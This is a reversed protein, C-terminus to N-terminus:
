RCYQKSDVNVTLFVDARSYSFMLSFIHVEVILHSRHHKRKPLIAQSTNTRQEKVLKRGRSTNTVNM